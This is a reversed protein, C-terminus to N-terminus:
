EIEYYKHIILSIPLGVCIMLIAMNKLVGEVTFTRAQINTFPLIGLNMVLWVFIGYLLGVIIKQNKLPIKKFIFFFFTAFSLAISFHIFIGYIVMPTGGEFAAKGFLGSAVYQFLFQFKMKALLIVAASGDLFGALLGAKLITNTANKM